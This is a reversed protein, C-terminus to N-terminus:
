RNKNRLFWSHTYLHYMLLSAITLVMTTYLLTDIKKFFLWYGIGMGLALGTEWGLFYTSQSTGRKCHRSLKIFFLLFRSSCIGLGLGALVPAVPSDFHVILVLQAAGLLILGSIVESKLEANRFVFRQALLALFFGVMVLAYFLISVPLSMLLGFVIAVLLLNSFLVMGEPLIFRDLSAKHVNDEPARFPFSVLKILLMSIIAMAISVLFVSGFDYLDYIVLGVLPGLSLAFRSFWAASHNAETRQYSESTDIILTSSLVMQALGFSAGLLLRQLLILGLDAYELQKEDIYWLLAMSLAQAVVAWMYVVNRRYRQVLWSCHWGLLYLGLAFAGISLGTEMPSLGETQMLWQPLVPILIYVSMTLLLNAVLLMWFDRHWLKIHVPTNQTNLIRLEFNM